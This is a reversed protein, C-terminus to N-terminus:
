APDIWRLRHTVRSMQSVPIWPPPARFLPRLISRSLFAILNLDIWGLFQGASVGRLWNFSVLWALAALPVVVWLLIGRLVLLAVGAAVSNQRTGGEPSM